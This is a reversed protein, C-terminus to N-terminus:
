ASRMYKELVNGIKEASADALQEASQGPQQYINIAITNNMNTGTQNSYNGTYNTPMVNPITAPMPVYNLREGGTWIRSGKSPMGITAPKPEPLDEIEILELRNNFKAHKGQKALNDQIKDVTKLNMDQVNKVNPKMDKTWSMMEKTMGTVTKAGPDTFFMWLDELILFWSVLGAVMGTLALIPKTMAWMGTALTKIGTLSKTSTMTALGMAMMQLNTGAFKSSTAIDLIIWNIRRLATAYQVLKTAGFILLILKLNRIILAIGRNILSLLNLVEQSQLLKTIQTVIEAFQQGVEGTMIQAQFEQWATSLNVLAFDLSKINETFGEGLEKKLQATFKPVFVTAALKGKSMMEDLKQTTVGMARAAIEFAGPLANGMQLRLEQASVKGKSLMQELSVLASQIQSQSAGIGRGAVLVDSFMGQIQGKGFGVGTAASYFNKYSGAINMLDTGTRYAEQRLYQFDDASKTLGKISKQMLDFKRSTEVISRVGQISLFIGFAQKFSKALLNNEKRARKQKKDLDDFGKLDAKTSIKQVLEELYTTM